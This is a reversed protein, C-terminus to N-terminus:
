ARRRANQSQVTVRAWWRPCIEVPLVTRDAQVIVKTDLPPCSISKGVRRCRAVTSQPAYNAYPPCLLAHGGDTAFKVRSGMTITRDTTGVIRADLPPCSVSKGVRRYRTTVTSAFHKGRQLLPISPSKRDKGFISRLLDGRAGRKCLPSNSLSHLLCNKRM